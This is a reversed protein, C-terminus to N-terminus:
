LTHHKTKTTEKGEKENIYNRTNHQLHTQTNTRIHKTNPQQQQKSVNHIHKMNPTTIYMYITIENKYNDMTATHNHRRKPTTINNNKIHQIHKRNQTAIYVYM